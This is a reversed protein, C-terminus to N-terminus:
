AILETKETIIFLRGLGSLRLYYKLSDSTSLLTFKGGSQEITNKFSSILAVHYIMEREDELGDMDLIFNLYGKEILSQAFSRSSIVAGRDIRGSVKVTLTGNLSSITYDM